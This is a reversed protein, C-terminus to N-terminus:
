ATRMIIAILEANRCSLTGATSCKYTIDVNLVGSVGRVVGTIEDALGIRMETNATDHVKISKNTGTYITGVDVKAQFDMNAAAVTHKFVGSGRVLVTYTGAPVSAFSIGLASVYSVTSTTSANTAGTAFNAEWQPIFYSGFPVYLADAQGQSLPDPEAAQAISGLVIQSGDALRLSAVPDGAKPPYISIVPLLEANPDYTEGRPTLRAQGASMAGVTAVEPIRENIAQDMDGYFNKWFDHVTKSQKTDAM